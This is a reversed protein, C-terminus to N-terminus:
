SSNRDAKCQGKSLVAEFFIGIWSDLDVHNGLERRHELSELIQNHVSEDFIESLLEQITAHPMLERVKQAVWYSLERHASHESLVDELYGRM